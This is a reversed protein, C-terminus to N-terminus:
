STEDSEDEPTEFVVAEIQEDSVSPKETFWSDIVQDLSANDQCKHKMLQMEPM